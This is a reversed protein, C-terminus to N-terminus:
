PQPPWPPAINTCAYEDHRGIVVHEMLRVKTTFVGYPEQVQPLQDGNWASITHYLILRDPNGKKVETFEDMIYPGYGVGCTMQPQSWHEPEGLSATRLYVRGEHPINIMSWAYDSAAKAGHISLLM